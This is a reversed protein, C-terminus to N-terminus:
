RPSYSSWYAELKHGLINRRKMKALILELFAGRKHGLLKRRKTNALILELFAGWKHRLLKRRKVKAFVLELFAGRKHGLLKRRKMKAFVLELFRETQPVPAALPMGLAIQSVEYCSTAGRLPKQSRQRERRSRRRSAEQGDSLSSRGDKGGPNGVHARRLRCGANRHGNHTINVISQLRRCCTSASNVLTRPNWSTRVKIKISHSADRPM